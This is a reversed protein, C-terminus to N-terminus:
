SKESIVGAVASRAVQIRVNDAKIRIVLSDNDL